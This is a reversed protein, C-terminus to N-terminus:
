QYVTAVEQTLEQGKQSKEKNSDWRNSGASKSPSLSPFFKLGQADWVSMFPTQEAWQTYTKLKRQNYSINEMLISTSNSGEQLKLVSTAHSMVNQLAADM